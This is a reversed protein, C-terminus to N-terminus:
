ILASDEVVFSEFAKMWLFDEKKELNIKAIIQIDQYEKM